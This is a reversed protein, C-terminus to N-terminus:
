GVFETHRALAHALDLRAGEFLHLLRDLVTEGCDFRALVSASANSRMGSQLIYAM